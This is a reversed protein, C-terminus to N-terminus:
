VPVGGTGIRYSSNLNGEIRIADVVKDGVVIRVEKNQIDQLTKNISELLPKLSKDGGLANKTQPATKVQSGGPLNVLEPGQEGVISIGSAPGGIQHEGPTVTHEDAPGGSSDGPELTFEGTAWGLLGEFWAPPEWDFLDKFIDTLVDAIAIIPLLFYNAIIQGINSLLRKIPEILDGWSKTGDMIGLVADKIDMVSKWTNKFIRAIIIIRKIAFKLPLFAIKVLPGLLQMVPLLGEIMQGIEEMLPAMATFFMNKIKEWAMGFKETERGQTAQALIQENTLGVIDGLKDGQEDLLALQAKAADTDQSMLKQRVEDLRQMKMLDSVEMGYLKALKQREYPLMKTIDGQNRLQKAMEEAAEAEKGLFKLERARDLNITKGTMSQYEYQDSLSTELSLLTDTMKLLGAIDTGITAAHIAVKAMGDANGAMSKALLKGNTALDKMVKGPSVGVLDAMHAASAQINVAVEDSVGGVGTLVNHVKAAEAAGHMFANGIDAVSGAVETAIMDMRGWQEHMATQVALVDEETSLLNETSAVIDHTAHTIHKANKFSLGTQKAYDSAHKTMKSLIAVIGILVAAVAVYPNMNAIVNFAKAGTQMITQMLSVSKGGTVTQKIYNSMGDALDKKLTKAIEDLGFMKAMAPGGPITGIFEDLGKQMKDLGENIPGAVTQAKASSEDLAKSHKKAVDLFGMSTDLMDWSIEGALYLKAIRKEEALIQDNTIGLSEKTRKTIDSLTDKFTERLDVLKESAAKEYELLKLHKKEAALVSNLGSVTSILGNNIDKITDEIMSAESGMAEMARRAELALEVTKKTPGAPTTPKKPGTPKRKAM